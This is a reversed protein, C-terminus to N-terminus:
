LCMPNMMNTGQGTEAGASGTGRTLKALPGYVTLEPTTYARRPTGDAPRSPPSDHAQKSKM